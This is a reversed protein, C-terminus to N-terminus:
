PTSQDDGARRYVVKGGLVTLDVKTDKIENPDITLLDRSLVVFDALKGPELTGKFEEEFTLYAGNRTYGVLAEPVSLREEPGFVRGSMGKRTVAAYLGLLPGTPMIDSGLAVFIGYGMPTRLPNNTEVRSDSLYAVYRGEITYTFNPQQAILINHEAMARMTAVPPMVTFHTLYDRHDDRPNEELVRVLQEVATKIAADGITHMGVRWGLRHAEKLVLYLDEASLRAKGFYTPQDRYPELTWAAPGTYGGDVFLKLPGVRLRADGQGSRFPLSKLREAVRAGEGVGVPVHIQVAARPLSDAHERYVAQWQAYGAPPTMAEIISTIGLAFLSRLEEVLSERLETETPPPILRALMGWSERFIGNPEGTSDKEIMGSPPDPTDRTVKGAQIALSNAVASHGGARAIVAPNRPLAQDLDARLPRRKEALEDESWGWGTIWKGPGLEEAKRRLREQFEAISRVGQMDVYNRPRGNVHIHTDNFGPVVLRGRLDITRRARYKDALQEGGVALVKGDRIVMVRGISLLPDATFIKGNRVLLDAPEQAALPAALAALCAVRVATGALRRDSRFLSRKV